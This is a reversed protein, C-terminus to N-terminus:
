GMACAIASALSNTWETSYEADFLVEVGDCAIHRYLWEVRSFAPALERLILPGVILETPPIGLM